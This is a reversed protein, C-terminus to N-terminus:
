FRPTGLDLEAGRKGSPGLSTPAEVTNVLRQHSIGSIDELGIESVQSVSSAMKPEISSAVFAACGMSGVIRVHTMAGEWAGIIALFM